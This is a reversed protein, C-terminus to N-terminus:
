DESVEMWKGKPKARERADVSSQGGNSGAPQQRRDKQLWVMSWKEM